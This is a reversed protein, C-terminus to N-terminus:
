ALCKPGNEASHPNAPPEGCLGRKQMGTARQGLQCRPGEAMAPAPTIAASCSGGAGSRRSTLRGYADRPQRIGPWPPLYSPEVAIGMAAARRQEKAAAPGSHLIHVMPAPGDPATAPVQSRTRSATMHNPRAHRSDYIEHTAPMTAIANLASRMAVQTPGQPTKKRYTCM